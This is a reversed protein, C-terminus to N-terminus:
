CKISCISVHLPYVCWRGYCWVSCTPYSFVRWRGKVDLIGCLTWHLTRISRKLPVSVNATIPSKTISIYIIARLDTYLSIGSALKSNEDNSSIYPLVTRLGIFVRFCNHVSSWIMSSTFFLTGNIYQNTSYAINKNSQGHSDSVHKCLDHIKILFYLRLLKLNSVFSENQQWTIM